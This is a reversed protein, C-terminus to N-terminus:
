NGYFDGVKDKVYTGLNQIVSTQFSSQIDKVFETLDIKSFDIKQFEEVTFGRCKPSEASGWSIGLQERGQEQIIRALSSNFACYSDSKQVCIKVLGLSLKKSCFNGIYHTQKEERKKALIKENEKCAVLGAFVKEKDCCGGGILGFFMDWTRCKNSKGNFIYITGACSGDESWGDNNKDDIGVQTDLNELNSQGFCPFPSCQWSNDVFSCPREANALCTFKQRKCNNLPPISSNLPTSLDNNITTNNPDIKATNGGSNIPLYNYGQSNQSNNCLYKYYTYEITRKCEGKATESGTTETYGQPCETVKEIKKCQNNELIEGSSCTINLRLFVYEVAGRDNNHYSDVLVGNNSVDSWSGNNITAYSIRVQLKGDNLRLFVYEVAGRDNNHYSDVLVGNNSVDSWSGNNITAYSIRVQFFNTPNTYTTKNTTEKKTYDVVEGIGTVSYGNDYDWQEGCSSLASPCYENGYKDTQCDLTKGVTVADITSDWIKTNCFRGTLEQVGDDTLPKCENLKDFEFVAKYKVPNNHEDAHNGDDFWKGNNGNMAVWHEGLPSVMQKGDVEDYEKVLNDPQYPAFNKYILSNGKVDRFRSSDYVCNSGFCYNQIKNPDEIGIWGISGGSILGKIFDNEAQSNPIALYGGNNKAIQKASEFTLRDVSVSYYHGNYLQFDKYDSCNMANLWNFFIMLIFIFKM